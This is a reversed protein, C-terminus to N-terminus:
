SLRRLKPHSAVGFLVLGGFAMALGGEQRDSTDGGTLPLTERTTPKIKHAANFSEGQIQTTPEIVFSVPPSLGPRGTTSTTPQEKKTTTTAESSTTTTEHSTTSTTPNVTTTPKLTSTTTTSPAETTTTTPKESTTTTSPAETTTTTSPNPVCDAKLGSSPTAEGENDVFVHFIDDEATTPNYPVEGTKAPDVNSYPTDSLLTAGSPDYQKVDGSITHPNGVAQTNNAIFVDIMNNHNPPCGISAQVGPVAAAAKDSNISSLGAYAGLTTLLAASAAVTRRALTLEHEPSPSQPM